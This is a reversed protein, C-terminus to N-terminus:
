WHSAGRKARQYARQGEVHRDFYGLDWVHVSGDFYGVALCKGDAFDRPLFGVALSDGANADLTLLCRRRDEQTTPSAAATSELGAVDWVRVEGDNSVSALLDGTANFAENLVLQAHGYLLSALRPPAPAPATAPSPAAKDSGALNWLQVTRDWSGAALWKGDPSWAVRWPM